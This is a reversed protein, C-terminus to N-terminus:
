HKNLKQNQICVLFSNYVTRYYSQKFEEDENPSFEFCLQKICKKFELYNFRNTDLSICCYDVIGSKYFELLVQKYFQQTENTTPMEELQKLYEEETINNIEFYVKNLSM